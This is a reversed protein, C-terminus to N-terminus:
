YGVAATCFMTLFSSDRPALIRAFFPIVPLGPGMAFHLAPSFGTAGKTLALREISACFFPQINSVEYPRVRGFFLDASIFARNFHIRSKGLMAVRLVTLFLRTELSYFPYLRTVRLVFAGTSISDYVNTRQRSTM